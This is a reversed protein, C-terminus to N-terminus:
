ACISSFLNCCPPVVQVERQLGKHIRSFSLIYSSLAAGTFLSQFSELLQLKNKASCSLLRPAIPRFLVVGTSHPLGGGFCDRFLFCLNSNLRIRSIRCLLAFWACCSVRFTTLSAMWSFTTSWLWVLSAPGFICTVSCSCLDWMRSFLHLGTQHSRRM